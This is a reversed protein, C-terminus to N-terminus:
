AAEEKRKPPELLIEHAASLTLDEAVRWGNALYASVDEIPIYRGIARHRSRFAQADTM